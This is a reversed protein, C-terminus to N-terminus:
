HIKSFLEFVLLQVQGKHLLQLFYLGCEFQCLDILNMAINKLIYVKVQIDEYLLFICVGSTYIGSIPTCLYEFYLLRIFYIM